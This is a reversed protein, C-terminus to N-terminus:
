PEHVSARKTSDVSGVSPKGNQQPARKAEASHLYEQYGGSYNASRYFGMERLALTVAASRVGKDDIVVIKKEPVIGLEKLKPVLDRRSGGKDQFFETWPINIAGLDPAKLSDVSGSKGLYESVTRVDILVGERGQPGVQSLFRSFENKSFDLSPDGSDEVKWFSKTERPISAEGTWPIRVNSKELIQPPGFVVKKIGLIKLTWALRGEEGEGSPGRGMVVVPTDPGLGLRALRRVHYDRDAELLGMHPRKRQSFDEWRLSIAGRPHSVLYLTPPRADVLITDETWQLSEMSDQIATFPREESLPRKLTLCGSLLFLFVVFFVAFFGGFPMSSLYRFRDSQPLEFQPLEVKSLQNKLVEPRSIKAKLHKACLTRSM